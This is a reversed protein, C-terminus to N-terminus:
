VYEITFGRITALSMIRHSTAKEYATGYCYLIKGKGDLGHLKVPDSIYRVNHPEVRMAKAFDDAQRKSGAHVYLLANLASKNGKQKKLHCQCPPTAARCKVCYM